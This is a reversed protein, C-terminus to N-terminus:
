FCMKKWWHSNKNRVFNKMVKTAYISESEETDIYDKFDNVKDTGNVDTELSDFNKNINDSNQNRVSDLSAPPVFNERLFWFSGRGQHHSFWSEDSDHRSSACKDILNHVLIYLCSLIPYM